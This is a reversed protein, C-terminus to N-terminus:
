RTSGLFGHKKRVGKPFELNAFPFPREPDRLTERASSRVGAIFARLLDGESEEPRPTEAYHVFTDHLVSLTKIWHGGRHPSRNGLNTGYYENVRKRLARDTKGIYLISEDRLWFEGLRQVVDDPSPESRGDLKFSPVRALWGAVERRDVPADGTIVPNQDCRSALSLLYVGQKLSPVPEGWQVVGTWQLGVQKLLDAISSM